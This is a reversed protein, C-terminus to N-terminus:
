EQAYRPEVSDVRFCDPDLDRRTYLVAVHDRRTESMQGQKECTFEIEPKCLGANLKRELWWMKSEFLVEVV